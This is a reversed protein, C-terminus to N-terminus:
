RRRSGPTPQEAAHNSEASTEGAARTAVKAPPLLKEEMRMLYSMSSTPGAFGLIRKDVDMKQSVVRGAEIDFRVEGDMLRQVLQSEIHADVPSLVQYDVAITAVGNEVRALKYHRRTHIMKTGGTKLTVTLEFPEDWTDGIAVPQEPLRVAIPGDDDGAQRKLKEDRRLLKGFPTIRVLSLPVGISRAADEFGPPPTENRQSDYETPDKDPLQNVMHVREVVTLFEIAGDPLVDTIKWAKISDTRTQAAQTAQDITSHIAARHSVEYRLVEGIKCKYRLECTTKDPASEVPTPSTAGDAAPAEDAAMRATTGSVMAAVSLLVAASRWFEIRRSM